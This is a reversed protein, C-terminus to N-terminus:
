RPASEASFIQARPSCYYDSALCPAATYKEAYPGNMLSSPDYSAVSFARYGFHPQALQSMYDTTACGSLASVVGLASLWKVHSMM